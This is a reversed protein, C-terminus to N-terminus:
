LRSCDSTMGAIGSMWRESWADSVLTLQTSVAYRSVAEIAVGITPRRPSM